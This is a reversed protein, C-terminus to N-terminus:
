RCRLPLLGTPISTRNEGQATMKDPTKAAGCLWALPVVRADEVGAPRLTLVKDQLGRHAQNGFLIHIAGHDLTVAKVRQNVIKEPPPLGAAANDAPLAAGTRWAADVAPKAIDALPLAEAIQARVQRDLYSPLAILMLIALVALAVMLELLTFGRKPQSKGPKSM